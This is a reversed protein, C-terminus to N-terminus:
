VLWLRKKIEVTIILTRRVARWCVGPVDQGAKDGGCAAALLVESGDVFVRAWVKVGCWHLGRDMSRKDSIPFSFGSFSM